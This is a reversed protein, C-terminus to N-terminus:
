DDNLAVFYPLQVYIGVGKGTVSEGARIAVVHPVGAKVFANGCSESSCSSIVVLKTRAHKSRFLDGLANAELSEMVGCQLDNDSEFSLCEGDGHGVYHIMECGDSLLEGVRSPTAVVARFNIRLGSKKLKRRITEEDQM